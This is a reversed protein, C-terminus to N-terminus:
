ISVKAWAVQFGAVADYIGVDSWLTDARSDNPVICHHMYGAIGLRVLSRSSTSDIHTPRFSLASTNFILPPPSPYSIVNQRKTGAWKPGSVESSVRSLNRPVNIFKSRRVITTARMFAFGLKWPWHDVRPPPNSTIRFKPIVTKELHHRKM